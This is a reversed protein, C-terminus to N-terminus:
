SMLSCALVTSIPTVGLDLGDYSVRAGPPDSQIKDPSPEGLMRMVLVRGRHYLLLRLNKLAGEGNFYLDTTAWASRTM